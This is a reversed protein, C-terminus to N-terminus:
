RLALIGGLAKSWPARGTSYCDSRIPKDRGPSISWPADQGEPGAEAGYPRCGPPRSLSQHFQEPSCKLPFRSGARYTKAKCGPRGGRPSAVTHGKHEDAPLVDKPENSSRVCNRPPDILLWLHLTLCHGGDHPMRGALSPTVAVTLPDKFAGEYFGEGQAGRHSFLEM